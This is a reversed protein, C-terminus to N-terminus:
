RRSKPESCSSPESWQCCRRGPWRANVCWHSWRGLMKLSKVCDACSRLVKPMVVVLRVFRDYKVDASVSMHIVITPTKVLKLSFVYVTLVPSLQVKVSFLAGSVKLSPELSNNGEATRRSKWHPYIHKAFHKVAEEVTSDMAEEMEEFSLVPPNDVAAFPQKAKATEEFFNMTAEFNDESCPSSAGRKQNLIKLFVDDEETMNYPCGCCDEVTASSRIYTAPQSFLPPYLEDYRLNSLITEPTPIHADNVKGQATLNIAVQM